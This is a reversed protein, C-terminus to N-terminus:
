VATVKAVTADAIRLLACRWSQVELGIAADGAATWRGALNNAALSRAASLADNGRGLDLLMSCASVAAKRFLLNTMAV